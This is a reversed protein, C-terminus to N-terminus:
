EMILQYCVVSNGFFSPVLIRQTKPLYDLDATNQKQESSDLLKIVEKDKSVFIKGAWNSFVFTKNDIKELGDISGTGSVLEKMEKTKIDIEWISANGAYLKGNEVWLGNVDDLRPDSLWSAFEGNILAYIRQDKMDSVFVIGDDSVAVDNLFKSNPAPFKKIIVAKDIDIMALEDMDSSYLKNKFVAIGKPDNLGTVWKLNKVEGELNMLAIFGDGTKKGLDTGQNSVYAIDCEPVYLVSEPTKLAASTTWIKELKQSYSSVVFLIAMLLLLTKRMNNM